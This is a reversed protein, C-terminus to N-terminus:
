SKLHSDIKSNIDYTTNDIKTNVDDVKSSIDSVQDDVKKNIEYLQDEISGLHTNVDDIKSPDVVPISMSSTTPQQMSASISSVLGRKKGKNLIFIIGLLGLVIIAVIALFGIILLYFDIMIM